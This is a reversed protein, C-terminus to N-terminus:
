RSLVMGLLLMLPAQHVRHDPGIIQGESSARQVPSAAHQLAWFEAGIDRCAEDDHSWVAM